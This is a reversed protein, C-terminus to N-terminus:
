AKTIKIESLKKIMNTKDLMKKVIEKVQKKTGCWLLDFEESTIETPEDWRNGDELSILCAMPEKSKGDKIYRFRAIIYQGEGFEVFRNFTPKKQKM